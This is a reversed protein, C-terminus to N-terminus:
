LHGQHTEGPSLFHATQVGAERSLDTTGMPRGHMWTLRFPALAGSGMGQSICSQPSGKAPPLDLSVETEDLAAEMQHPFFCETKFM